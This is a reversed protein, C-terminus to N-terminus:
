PISLLNATLDPLLCVKCHLESSGGPKNAAILASVSPFSFERLDRVTVYIFGLDEDASPKKLDHSM